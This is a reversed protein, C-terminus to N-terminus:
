KVLFDDHGNGVSEINKTRKVTVAGRRQAVFPRRPGGREPLKHLHKGRAGLLGIHAVRPDGPHPIHWGRHHRGRQIAGLIPWVRGDHFTISDMDDGQEFLVGFQRQAGVTADRQVTRQHSGAENIKDLDRNERDDRAFSTGVWDKFVSRVEIQFHNLTPREVAVDLLQNISGYQM